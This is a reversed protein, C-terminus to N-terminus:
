SVAATAIGWLSEGHRNGMAIGWLSEGYPDRIYAVQLAAELRQQEARIAAEVDPM